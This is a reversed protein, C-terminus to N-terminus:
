QVTAYNGVAYRKAEEIDSALLDFGDGTDLEVYFWSKGEIVIDQLDPNIESLALAKAYTVQM